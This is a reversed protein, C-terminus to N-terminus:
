KVVEAADWGDDVAEEPDDAYSFRNSVPFLEPHRKKIGDDLFQRFTMGSEEKVATCNFCVGTESVTFRGCACKPFDSQLRRVWACDACFQDDCGLCLKAVGAGKM